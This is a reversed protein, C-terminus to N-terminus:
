IAVVLNLGMRPQFVVVKLSEQVFLDWGGKNGWACFVVEVQFVDIIVVPLVGFNDLLILEKEPPVWHLGEKFPVVEVLM